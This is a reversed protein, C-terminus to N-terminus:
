GAGFVKISTSMTTKMKDDKKVTICFKILYKIEHPAFDPSCLFVTSRKTYIERPKLIALNLSKRM